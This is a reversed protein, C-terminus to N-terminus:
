KKPFCDLCFRKGKANSVSAFDTKGLKELKELVQSCAKRKHVRKSKEGGQTVVTFWAKREEATKQHKKQQAAVHKQMVKRTVVTVSQRFVLSLRCGEIPRNKKLLKEEKTPVIAHECLLNDEASMYILSGPTPVFRIVEKDHDFRDRVVFERLDKGLTIILFPATTALDKTKDYHFGIADDKAGTPDRDYRTLIVHNADFKYETSVEQALQEVCKESSLREYFKLSGWTWGTYYYRYWANMPGTPSTNPPDKVFFRKSRRLENGRM